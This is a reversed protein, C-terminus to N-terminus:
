EKTMFTRYFDIPVIIRTSTDSRLGRMESKTIQNKVGWRRLESVVQSLLPKKIGPSDIQNLYDDHTQKSIVDKKLLYDVIEKFEATNYKIKYVVVGDYEEATLGASPAFSTKSSSKTFDTTDVERGGMINTDGILDYVWACTGILLMSQYLGFLSTNYLAGMWTDKGQEPLKKSEEIVLKAAYNIAPMAHEMNPISGQVDLEVVFLNFATKIDPTIKNSLPNVKYITGNLWRVYQRNKALNEILWGLARQWSASSFTTKLKTLYKTLANASPDVARNLIIDDADQEISAGMDGALLSSEFAKIFEILSEREDNYISLRKKSGWVGRLKTRIKKREPESIASLFIKKTKIAKWAEIAFSNVVQATFISLKESPNLLTFFASSKPFSKRELDFDWLWDSVQVSGISRGDLEKGEGAVENIVLGDRHHNQEFTGYLYTEINKINRM